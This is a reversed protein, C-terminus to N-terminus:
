SNEKQLGDCCKGMTWLEDDTGSQPKDIGVALETVSNLSEEKGKRHQVEKNLSDCEHPLDKLQNCVECLLGAKRRSCSAEQELLPHTSCVEDGAAQAKKTLTLHLKVGEETLTVIDTLSAMRQCITQTAHDQQHKGSAHPKKELTEVKCNSERIQDELHEIKAPSEEMATAACAHDDKMAKM